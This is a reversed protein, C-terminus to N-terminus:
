CSPVIKKIFCQDFEEATYAITDRFIWKLNKCIHTPSNQPNADNMLDKNIENESKSENPYKEENYVLIFTMRSQADRLDRLINLDMAILLSARAKEGCNGTKGNKFEIFFCEGDNTKYLADCSKFRNPYKRYRVHEKAVKDFNIVFANSLSMCTGGGESVKRFTSGCKAAYPRGLQELLAKM